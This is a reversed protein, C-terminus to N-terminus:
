SSQTKKAAADILLAKSTAIPRESLERKVERIDKAQRTRSDLQDNEIAAILENKM